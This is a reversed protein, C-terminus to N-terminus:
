QVHWWIRGHVIEHVLKQDVGFLDATERQTSGSDIMLRISRVDDDTLKKAARGKLQKDIANTSDTGLRLHHPAVCWANDCSHEVLM